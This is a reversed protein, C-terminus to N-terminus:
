LGDEKELDLGLAKIWQVLVVAASDDLYVVDSAHSIEDSNATLVVMGDRSLHVYAGDGLYRPNIMM